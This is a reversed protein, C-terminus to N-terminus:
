VIEIIKHKSKEGSVIFIQSKEVQFFKALLEIVQENAKGGEARSKVWVHVVDNRQQVENKPAGAKVSVTFRIM